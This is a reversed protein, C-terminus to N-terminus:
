IKYATIRVVRDTKASSAKHSIKPSSPNFIPLHYFLGNGDDAVSSNIFQTGVGFTGISVNDWGSIVYGNVSSAGTVVGDVEMVMPPVIKSLAIAGSGVGDPVAAISTSVNGGNLMLGWTPNIWFKRGKQYFEVINAASNNRFVTCFGYFTFGPVTFTSDSLDPSVADTSIVVDIASAGDSIIYVYYWTDAAETGADLGGPGVGITIDATVSINPHIVQTAGDTVTFSPIAIVVTTTDISHAVVTELGTTGAGTSPTGNLQDQWTPVGGSITLIKGDANDSITEAEGTANVYTLGRTSMFDTVGAVSRRLLGSGTLLLVDEVDMLTWVGSVCQLAQTTSTDNVLSTIRGDADLVAIGRFDASTEKLSELNIPYADTGDAWFVNDGDFVLVCKTTPRTLVVSEGDSNVVVVQYGSVEAIPPEALPEVANICSM